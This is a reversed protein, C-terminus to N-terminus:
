PQAGLEVVEHLGDPRSSDREDNRPACRRLLGCRRKHHWPNSRKARLSSWPPSRRKSPVTVVGAWVGTEIGGEGAGAARAPDEAIKQRRPQHLFDADVLGLPLRGVQPARQAGGIAEAIGRDKEREDAQVRRAESRTRRKRAHRAAVLAQSKSQSQEKARGQTPPEEQASADEDGQM